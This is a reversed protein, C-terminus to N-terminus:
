QAEKTDCSWLRNGSMLFEPSVRWFGLEGKSDGWSNILIFDGDATYGCVCMAHGGITEPEGDYADGGNWSMFEKGVSWGGVLPIGSSLAARAEDVTSIKQYSRIGRHKFGNRVARWPPKKFVGAESTFVKNICAGQLQMAKFLTRIYSGDDKSEGDWVARGIYYLFLGSLPGPDYDEKHYIAMRMAYAGAYGTCSNTSGQDVIETGPIVLNVEKKLDRPDVAPFAFLHDREDKPDELYGLQPEKM